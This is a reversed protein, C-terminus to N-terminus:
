DTRGQPPGSDVRVDFIVEEKAEQARDAPTGPKAGTSVDTSLGVGPGAGPTNQTDRQLGFLYPFGPASLGGRWEGTDSRWGAQHDNVVNLTFGVKMLKPVIIKSGEPFSNSFGAQEVARAAANAASSGVNESAIHIVGQDLDHTVALGQISCLAGQGDGTPSAILNAYRVRFLPTAAVSTANETQSYTPYTSAYLWNLNNLNNLASTISTSPINLGITISRRSSKWVYYPSTRGFATEQSTDQKVEDKISDLFAIFQIVPPNKIHVPIIELLAGDAAAASSEFDGDKFKVNSFGQDPQEGNFAAVEYQFFKPM